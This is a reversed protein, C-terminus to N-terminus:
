FPLERVEEQRSSSRNLKRPRWIGALWYFVVLWESPKPEPNGTRQQYQEFSRGLTEWGEDNKMQQVIRSKRFAYYSACGAALRNLNLVVLYTVLGVTVTTVAMASYGLTDSTSWISVCFTLPLYFISVYTLLKINEALRASSEALRSSIKSERVSSAAFLGDRLAVSKARQGAFKREIHGFKQITREINSVMKQISRREDPSISMGAKLYPEVYGAKYEEWTHVTASIMEAFEHVSNILWSYKRSDSFDDDDFLLKDDSALGIINTTSDLLEDTYDCINSWELGVHRLADAILDLAVLQMSSVGIDPSEIRPPEATSREYWGPPSLVLITWYQHSSLVRNEQKRLFDRFSSNSNESLRTETNESHFQEDGPVAFVGFSDQMLTRGYKDNYLPGAQLKGNRRTRLADYRPGFYAIQFWSILFAFGNRAKIPNRMYCNAQHIGFMGLYRKIIQDVASDHFFPVLAHSNFVIEREGDSYKLGNGEEGSCDMLDMILSLGQFLSKWPAQPVPVAVRRRICEYFPRNQPWIAAPADFASEDERHPDKWSPDVSEDLHHIRRNRRIACKTHDHHYHKIRGVLDYDRVWFAGSNEELRKCFDKTWQMYSLRPSGPSLIMRGDQPVQLMYECFDVLESGEISVGSAECALDAALAYPPSSGYPVEIWNAIRYPFLGKKLVSSRAQNRHDPYPHTAAADSDPRNAQQELQTRQDLLSEKSGCSAQHDEDVVQQPGSANMATLSDSMTFLGSAVEKLQRILAHNGPLATAETDYRVNLDSM